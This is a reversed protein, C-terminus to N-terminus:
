SVTGRFMYIEDEYIARENDLGATSWTDPRRLKKGILAGQM